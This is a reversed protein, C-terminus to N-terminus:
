IVTILRRFYVNPNGDRDSVWVLWTSRDPAVVAYPVNDDGAALTLQRPQGWTGTVADRRMVFLDGNPAGRAWFLWIAGDGGVDASPQRDNAM